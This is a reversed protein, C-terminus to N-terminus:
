RYENETPLSLCKLKPMTGGKMVYIMADETVWEALSCDLTEVFDSIPNVM